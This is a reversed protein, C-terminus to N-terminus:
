LMFVAPHALDWAPSCAKAPLPLAPPRMLAGHRHGHVKPPPCKTQSLLPHREPGTHGSCLQMVQPGVQEVACHQQCSPCSAVGSMSGPVAAASCSTNPFGPQLRLSRQTGGSSGHHLGCGWPTLTPLLAESVHIPRLTPEESSVPPCLLLAGLFLSTGLFCGRAGTRCMGAELVPLWAPGARCAALRHSKDACVGRVLVLSWRPGPAAAPKGGELASSSLQYCSPVWFSRAWGEPTLRQGPPWHPMVPGSSSRLGWCCLCM